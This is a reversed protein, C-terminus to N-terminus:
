RSWTPPRRELFARLGEQGERSTRQAAIARATPELTTDYPTEAIQAFLAKAAAIGSPSAGLVEGTVRVVAADLADAAVVEHVLGIALARRADFREGTLALARLHSRGIKALVFPSIVAPLIGLKTETFGFITGEAAIAVDCVAVLGAGGGLAAGHVRGIVPKRVGDIRRLMRSLRRADEVNEGESLDLSARMWNIDAGGSFIKGAGALVIARVGDDADLAAFTRELDAILPANFANRVEPRTLVVHAIAGDRRVDLLPSEM